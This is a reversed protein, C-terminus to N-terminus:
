FFVRLYICLFVYNELKLAYFLGLRTPMGNGDILLYIRRTVLIACQVLHLVEADYDALEFELREIINVHPSIDKPFTHVRKDVGM